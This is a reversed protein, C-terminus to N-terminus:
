HARGIEAGFGRGIWSAVRDAASREGVLRWVVARVIRGGDLPEAPLMNFVAVFANVVGVWVAAATVVTPAGVVIAQAAVLVAGVAFALSALPGVAAIRLDARPDHPEEGLLVVGGLVGVRIAYVPLRHRSAVVAHAFEHTLLSGVFVLAAVLGALWHAWAPTDPASAPLVVVAAVVTMSAVVAAASWHIEVVCGSVRGLSLARRTVDRVGPAGGGRSSLDGEGCGAGPG